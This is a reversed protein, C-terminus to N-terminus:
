QDCEPDSNDMWDLELMSRFRAEQTPDCWEEIIINIRVVLEVPPMGMREYGLYLICEENLVFALCGNEIRHFTDAQWSRIVGVHRLYASDGFSRIELCGESTNTFFFPSIFGNVHRIVGSEVGAVDMFVCTEFELLYLRDTLSDLRPGYSLEYLRQVHEEGISM